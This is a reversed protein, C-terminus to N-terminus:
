LRGSTPCPPRGHRTQRPGFTMDVAGPASGPHTQDDAVTVSSTWSLTVFVDICVAASAIPM